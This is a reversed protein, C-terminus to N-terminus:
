CHACAGVVVHVSSNGLRALGIVQCSFAGDNGEWSALRPSLLLLLSEKPVGVRQMYISKCLVHWMRTDHMLDDVQIFPM